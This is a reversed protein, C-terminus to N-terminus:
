CAAAAHMCAHASRGHSRAWGMWLSAEIMDDDDQGDGAAEIERAQAAEMQNRSILEMLEQETKSQLKGQFPDVTAAHASVSLERAARGSSAPGEPPAHLSHGRSAAGSARTLSLLPMSSGADLAHSFSLAALRRIMQNIREPRMRGVEPRFGGPRFVRSARDIEKAELCSHPHRGREHLM